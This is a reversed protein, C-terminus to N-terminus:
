RNNPSRKVRGRSRRLCCRLVLGEKNKPELENYSGPNVNDPENWIDWALVRQDRAFAGVVSKVYEKLRPYESENQLAARSQVWGPITYARRAGSQRKPDPDWVSDFLVFM